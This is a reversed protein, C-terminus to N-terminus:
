LEDISDGSYLVDYVVPVDDRWNRGSSTGVLPKGQAVETAFKQSQNCRFRPQPFPEEWGRTLGCVADLTSELVSKRAQASSSRTGRSQPARKNPHHHSLHSLHSLSRPVLMSVPNRHKGLFSTMELFESM